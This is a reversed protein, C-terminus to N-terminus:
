KQNGNADGEQLKLNTQYRNWKVTYQKIENNIARAQDNTRNLIRNRVDEWVEKWKKHRDTLVTEGMGWLHGFEEEFAAIAGVGATMIKKEIIKVLRDRSADLYNEEYEIKRQVVVQKLQKFTKNDM